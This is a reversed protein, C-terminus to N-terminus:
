LWCYVRWSQWDLTSVLPWMGEFAQAASTALVKPMALIQVAADPSTGSNIFVQVMPVSFLLAPAAALM